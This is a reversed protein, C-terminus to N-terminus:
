YSERIATRGEVIEVGHSTGLLEAGAELLAFATERDNIGGSAKVRSYGNLSEKIFVIDEVTAPTAGPAWGGSSNKIWDVRAEELIQIALRKENFDPIMGLQLMAKIPMGEAASVLVQAEKQFDQYMKSLFYGMNPAYDVEDAGLRRCERILAQKGDVSANGMAFDIFTATKVNTGQLIDRTLPVWCMAVMAANFHYQACIEVHKVVQERTIDPNILTAQITAALREPIDDSTQNM